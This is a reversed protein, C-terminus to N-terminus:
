HIEVLDRGHDVDMGRVLRDMAPAIKKEMEGGDGDAQEYGEAEFAADFPLVMAVEDVFGFSAEVVFDLAIGLRHVVDDVVHMLLLVGELLVDDDEFVDRFVMFRGLVGGQFNGEVDAGEVTDTPLGRLGGASERVHGIVTGLHVGVDVGRLVFKLYGFV